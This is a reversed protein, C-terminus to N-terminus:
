TPIGQRELAREMAEVPDLEAAPTESGKPPVVTGGNPVWMMREHCHPCCPSTSCESPPPGLVIHKRHQDCYYTFSRARERETM